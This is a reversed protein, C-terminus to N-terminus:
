QQKEVAPKLHQEFIDRKVIRYHPHYAANYAPSHHVAQDNLSAQRLLERDEQGFSPKIEDIVDVIAEWKTAWDITQHQQPKASDLFTWLLQEPTILGDKVANLYVRVYDGSM